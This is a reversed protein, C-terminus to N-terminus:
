PLLAKILAENFADAFSKLGEPQPEEDVKTETKEAKPTEEKAETEPTEAIDIAEVDEMTFTDEAM